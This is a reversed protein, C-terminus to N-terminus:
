TSLPTRDGGEGPFEAGQNKRKAVSDECLPYVAWVSTTLFCCGCFHKESFDPLLNNSCLLFETISTIKKCCSSASIKTFMGKQYSSKGGRINQPNNVYLLSFFGMEM